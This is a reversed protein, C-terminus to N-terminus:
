GVGKVIRAFDMATLVGRAGKGDVALVRRARTAVAQEAARFAPMALPLCIVRPDMWNDVRDDPPAERAALADAQTFVGVPWGDEVVVLGSHHSLGMRDIALSLPDSASVVVLSGHMLESIPLALRAEIVAWLIEKSGIVGIPRRDESVYLRHVHQKVMRRAAEALPTEPSIIEVTATMLDGASANPLTLVKHRRGNMVRVRGARLLDTRSIVGIMGGARDRIPLASVGLRSLEKEVDAVSETEGITRVPSLMYQSVPSTFTNM